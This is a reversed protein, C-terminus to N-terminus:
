LRSSSSAISPMHILGCFMHLSCSWADSVVGATSGQQATARLNQM